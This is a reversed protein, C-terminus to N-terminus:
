DLSKLFEERLHSSCVLNWVQTGLQFSEREPSNGETLHASLRDKWTGCQRCICNLVDESSKNTLIEHSAMPLSCAELTHRWTCYVTNMSCGSNCAQQMRMAMLVCNTSFSAELCAEKQFSLEPCSGGADQRGTTTAAFISINPAPLPQLICTSTDPSYERTDSNLVTIALTRTANSHLEPIGRRALHRASM